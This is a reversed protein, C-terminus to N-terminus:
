KLTIGNPETGVEITAIVKNDENKIISVTNEYMNTVYVFRNDDSTVVGHAGKGVKITAVVKRSELDIKSVSDSPNEPTGQNAVFAFKGDTQVYVQAPGEGVTVKEVKENELNIIALSNEANLTVVLTKGDPTIGTTVPTNGVVIKKSEKMSDLDLISITDEGMNAIYATKSDAAIRFGHPGNGTSINQIVKYTALDIISVNNDQNNTVLAYKMNETFVIHAPHSGVEVKNIFEDTGVDYFVAFGNTKEEHGSDHGGHEGTEPVVTAGLIKGDPSIQVNHVSGEIDISKITKNTSADVKTIGGHEATYAVNEKENKSDDQTTQANKTPEKTTEKSRNDTTNGCAALFISFIFFLGVLIYKKM